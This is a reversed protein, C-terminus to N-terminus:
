VTEWDRDDLLAITGNLQLWYNSGADKHYVAWNQAVTRSKAIIMEPAQSLGHGVTAATQNGSYSIVSFGAEQNARVDSAITNGVTNAGITTTTDAAKWCWAVYNTGSTNLGAATQPDITFGDTDFSSVVGQNGGTDEVNTM